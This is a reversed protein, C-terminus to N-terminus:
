SRGANRDFMAACRSAVPSGGTGSKPDLAHDHKYNVRTGHVAVGKRDPGRIAASRTFAYSALEGREFGSGEEDNM